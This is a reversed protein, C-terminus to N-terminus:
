FKDCETGKGEYIYKVTNDMSFIYEPKIYFLPLNGYATSLMAHKMQVGESALGMERRLEKSEEEVTIVHTTTVVM